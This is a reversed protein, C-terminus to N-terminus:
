LGYRDKLFNFNQQVENQSLARNYVKVISILGSWYPVNYAGSSGDSYINGGIKLSESNNRNISADIAGNPLGLKQWDVFEQGNKYFTYNNNNHDWKIVLNVFDTTSDFFNNLMIRQNNNHTGNTDWYVLSLNTNVQQLNWEFSTKGLFTGSSSLSNPRLFMSITTSNTNNWSLDFPTSIYDNVGDFSFAPTSTVYEVGNIGTSVAYNNSLDAINKYRDIATGTTATYATVTSGRELQFGYLYLHGTAGAPNISSVGFTFGIRYTQTYKPTFTLEQRYWGDGVPTTQTLIKISTEFSPSFTVFLSGVYNANVAGFLNAFSGNKIYYSVTYTVGARLQTNIGRRWSGTGPTIVEFRVVGDLNGFPNAVTTDTTVSITGAPGETTQALASSPILNDPGSFSQENGADLHYILGNTVLELLQEAEIEKYFFM